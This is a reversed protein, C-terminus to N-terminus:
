DETFSSLLSEYAEAIAYRTADTNEDLRWKICIQRRDNVPNPTVPELKSFGPLRNPAWHKIQDEGLDRLKDGLPLSTWKSPKKGKSKLPFVIRARTVYLDGLQSEIHKVAQRVPEYLEWFHSALDDDPNQLRLHFDDVIGVQKTFYDRFYAIEDKTYIGGNDFPLRRKVVQSELINKPKLYTRQQDWRIPRLSAFLSSLNSRVGWYEKVFGDMASLKRGPTHEALLLHSRNKGASAEVCKTQFAAYGKYFKSSRKEREGTSQEMAAAVYGAFYEGDSTRVVATPCETDGVVVTYKLLTAAQLASIVLLNDSHSELNKPVVFYTTTGVKHTLFLGSKWSTEKVGRAQSETRPFKALMEQVAINAAQATTLEVEQGVTDDIM